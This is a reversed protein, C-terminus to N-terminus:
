TKGVYDFLYRNNEQDTKLLGEDCFAVIIDLKTYKLFFLTLAQHIRSKGNSAPVVWIQRPQNSSNLYALAATALQNSNLDVQIEKFITQIPGVKSMM